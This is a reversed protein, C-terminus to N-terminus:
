RRAAGSGTAGTVVFDTGGNFVQGTPGGPVTVTLAAKTVAAGNLGGAYLTATDTGNNASWIPSTPSLALGWANVLSPDTIKAKGAQDSVQDIETIRPAPGDHASAPVAVGLVLAVTAAITLGRWSARVRPVSVM